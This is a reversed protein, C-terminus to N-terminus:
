NASYQSRETSYRSIGNKSSMGTDVRIEEHRDILEHVVNTFVTHNMLCKVIASFRDNDTFQDLGLGSLGGACYILSHQKMYPDNLDLEIKDDDDTPKSHTMTAKASENKRLKLENFIDKISSELVRETSTKKEEMALLKIKFENEHRIGKMNLKVQELVGSGPLMGAGARDKKSISKPRPGVAPMNVKQRLKTKLRSSTSGRKLTSTNSQEFNDFGGISESHTLLKTDEQVQSVYQIEAQMIRNRKIIAKLQDALYIKQESLSELRDEMQQIDNEMAKQHLILRECEDYFWKVETELKAVEKDSNLDQEGKIIDEKLKKIENQISLMHVRYSSLFEKDVNSSVETVSANLNNLLESLDNKLKRAVLVNPRDPIFKRTGHASNEM